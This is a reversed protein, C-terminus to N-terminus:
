LGSPRLWLTLTNSQYDMREALARLILFGRGREAHEDPVHPPPLSFGSGTDTIDLRLLSDHQPQYVIRIGIPRESIGGHAHLVANSFAEALIQRIKLLTSADIECAANVLTDLWEHMHGLDDLGGTFTMSLDFPKM